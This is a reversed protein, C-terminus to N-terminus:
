PGSPEPSQGRYERVYEYATDVDFQKFRLLHGWSTVVVPEAITTWPFAIVKSNGAKDMVQQIQQKLNTCGAADLVNCNYWFIVYGHELSHVLHGEPPKPLTALDAETYFKAPFSSPYHRGGAPPNSPYPELPQGEDIHVQYGSPIQINEVDALTPATPAPRMAIYVLGVILVLALAGIWVWPSIASKRRSSSVPKKKINRPNGRQSAKQHTLTSQKM